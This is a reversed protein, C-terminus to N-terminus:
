NGTWELYIDISHTGPSVFVTGSPTLVELSNATPSVYGDIKNLWIKAAWHNAQDTADFTTSIESSNPQEHYKYIPGFACSCFILSTVGLAFAWGHRRIFANTNTINM